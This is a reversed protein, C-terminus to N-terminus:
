AELDLRWFHLHPIYLRKWGAECYAFDSDLLVM